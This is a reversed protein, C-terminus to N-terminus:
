TKLLAEYDSVNDFIKNAQFLLSQTEQLNQRYSWVVMVTSLLSVTIVVAILSSRVTNDRKIKRIIRTWKRPMHARINKGQKFRLLDDVFDAVSQYRKEREKELAKLCIRDLEPPLSSNFTSPIAPDKTCIQILLQPLQPAVFPLQRTLAEYFVVGLSYVDSREDVLDNSANAQEPSMYSPTGIIIGSVSIKDSGKVEKALGFDMIVPEFEENLMINEPKLDRHIIGHRHAYHVADGIKIFIDIVQEVSINEQLVQDLTKGVVLDMSFFYFGHENVVDYMKIINPHHLKAVSRIERLFRELNEQNPRELKKLAVKKNLLLDFAKYVTGMGGHGIEEFIVYRKKLTSKSIHQQLKHLNESCIYGKACFFQSISQQGPYQQEHAIYEQIQQPTILQMHLSLQIFLHDQPRM